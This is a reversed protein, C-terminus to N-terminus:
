GRALGERDDVRHEVPAPARAVGIVGAAGLRHHRDVRQEVRQDGGPLTGRPASAASRGSM